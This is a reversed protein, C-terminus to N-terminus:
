LVDRLLKLIHNLENKVDQLFKSDPVHEQSTNESDKKKKNKILYKKVGEITYRENYLLNKIKFVIEIDEKRYIRKGQSNRIPRLIKFEDEWYRLTHKPVLTLRSAESITFKEKEPVIKTQFV